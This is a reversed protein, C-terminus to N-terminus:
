GRSLVTMFGAHRATERHSAHAHGDFRSTRRSSAAAWWAGAGPTSSWLSISEAGVPATNPSTKSWVRDLEPARNPQGAFLALRRLDISVSSAREALRLPAPASSSRSRCISCGSRARGLRFWSAVSMPKDGPRALAVARQGFELLRPRPM